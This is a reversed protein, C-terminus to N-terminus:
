RVAVGRVRAAHLARLRVYSIPSMGLEEKCCTRLLRGSVGIAVSLAEASLRQGPETQLLGEFRIMIDQHQDRDPTEEDSPGNSLCAVLAEFLQQEMGHAAQANVITHPRAEASRIAAAHLHLLRRSAAAPPRWRRVFPSIMLKRETMVHFHDALDQVTFWIAGWRSPGESRVHVRHGPGITMFEGVRPIMGAWIPAPQHGLPFSLLVENAPVAWFGIRPLSDELVSLRLNLLNVQTLRGRFMGPATVFLSLNGLNRVAAQYEDLESFAAATSSVM